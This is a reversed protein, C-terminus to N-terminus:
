IINPVYIFEYRRQTEERRKREAKQDRKEKLKLLIEEINEQSLGKKLLQYRKQKYYFDQTYKFREETPM